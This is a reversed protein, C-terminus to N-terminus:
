AAHGSAARKRKAIKSNIVAAREADSLAIRIRRINDRSKPILVKDFLNVRQTIKKVAHELVDLRRNLVQIRIDLLILARLEDVLSDVWHPRALLSYPAVELSLDRLVPLHLGVVNEDGIDVARVTVLQRLDIRSDAAMPLKEGIEDEITKREESAADVERRAANREAILQKRKLDLSPLFREYTALQRTERTLSTKNLALQPM